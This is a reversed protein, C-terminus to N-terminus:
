RPAEAVNYSEEAAAIITQMKYKYILVACREGYVLTSCM